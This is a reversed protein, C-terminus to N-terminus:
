DRRIADGFEPFYREIDSLAFRRLISEKPERELMFRFSAEVLAEVDGSGRSYRALEEDSVSVQHSTQSGTELVSVDCIWTSSERRCAVAVEADQRPVGRM